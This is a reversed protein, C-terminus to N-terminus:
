IEAPVECHDGVLGLEVAIELDNGVVVVVDASLFNDVPVVFPADSATLAALSEASVAPPAAFGGYNAATLLRAVVVLHFFRTSRVIMYNALLAAAPVEFIAAAITETMTTAVEFCRAFTPALLKLGLHLAALASPIWEM